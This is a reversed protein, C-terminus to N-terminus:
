RIAISFALTEPALCREGSCAMFEVIGNVKTSSGKNKIKQQFVVSNEFYGLDMNFFPDFSRVPKPEITKGIIEYSKNPTFRISTQLPGGPPVMQSYIHWGEEINAKVFVISETDSIKKVAFSWKIPKLIQANAALVHLFFFAMVLHLTKM